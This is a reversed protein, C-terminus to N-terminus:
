FPIDDDPETLTSQASEPAQFGMEPQPPNETLQKVYATLDEILTSAESKSIEALGHGWLESCRTDVATKWDAHPPWPKAHLTELDKILAFVKRNQATSRKDDSASRQAGAGDDDEEPAIGLISVIAYRRLYTLMSGLEQPKEPVHPLPFTAGIVGGASHRLETRIGEGDLMQVLALGNEALPKRVAELIADLPAYTYSYTGTSVTKNKPIAPFKAQAKALAENLAAVGNEHREVIEGTQQDVVALASV